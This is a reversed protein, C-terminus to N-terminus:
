PMVKCPFKCAFAAKAVGSGFFRVGAGLHAGRNASPGWARLSTRVYGVPFLRMEAVRGVKM